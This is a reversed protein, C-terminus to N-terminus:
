ERHGAEPRLRTNAWDEFAKAGVSKAYGSARSKEGIAWYMEALLINVKVRDFEAIDRRIFAEMKEAEGVLGETPQLTWHVIQDTDQDSVWSDLGRRAVPGPGPITADDSHAYLWRQFKRAAKGTRSGRGKRGAELFHNHHFEIVSVIARALRRDYWNLTEVSETFKANYRAYPLPCGPAQEKALVGHLYTCIADSYGRATTFGRTARILDEVTRVDLRKTAATRAFEDEVRALDEESAIRFEVTFETQAEDGYVILHCTEWSRAALEEALREVPVERGNVLVRECREVVVDTAELKSTIVLPRSGAEAGRVILEPRHLPHHELRHTKLKDATAFIEGCAGCPYEPTSTGFEYGKLGVEEHFEGYGTQWFGM